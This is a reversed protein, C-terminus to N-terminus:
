AIETQTQYQIGIEAYSSILQEKLEVGLRQLMEYVFINFLSEPFDVNITEDEDVVQYDDNEAEVTTLVLRAVAPKKCYVWRIDMEEEPLMLMSGEGFSYGARNKALDMKRIPSRQTMSRENINIKYAPYLEDTILSVALTRYYDNDPLDSGSESVNVVGFSDTTVDRIVVHNVLADSVKQGKEYNDCLVSIVSWQTSYLDNNFEEENQYGSTGSKALQNIREWIKATSIM